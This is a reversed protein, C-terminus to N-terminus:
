DEKDFVDLSLILDQVGMFLRDFRFCVCCVLIREMGLCVAGAVVVLPQSAGCVRYSLSCM